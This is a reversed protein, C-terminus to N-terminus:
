ISRWISVMQIEQIGCVRELEHRQHMTMSSAIILQTTTFDLVDQYGKQMQLLHEHIHEWSSDQLVNQFLSNTFADDSVSIGVTIEKVCEESLNTRCIACQSSNQFTQKACKPCYFHKCRTRFAVGDVEFRCVNCMIKSMNRHNM